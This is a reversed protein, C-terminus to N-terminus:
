FPVDSDEIEGANTAKTAVKKAAIPEKMAAIIANTIRSLLEKSNEKDKNLLVVEHYIDKGNEDKKKEDKVSPMAVFYGGDRGDFIKFGKIVMAHDFELDAFGRLKGSQYARYFVKTVEM